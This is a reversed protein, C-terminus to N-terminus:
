KTIKSLSKVIRFNNIIGETKLHVFYKSLYKKMDGSKDPRGKFLEERPYKIDKTEGAGVWSWDFPFNNYTWEKINSESNIEYIVFWLGEKVWYKKGNKNKLVYYMNGDLGLRCNNVPFDSACEIPSKRM